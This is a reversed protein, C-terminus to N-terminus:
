RGTFHPPRKEAFAAIGEAHDETGQLWSVLTIADTMAEPALANLYQKAAAMALPANTAMQEGLARAADLHEGAGVIRQVLGALRAEDADLVQGGLIMLKMWHLNVHALGRAIGPGPVLGVQAEPMGFRATEDAIVVDSVISLECGGGLAFGHIAAIVPKECREVAEYASMADLMYARRDGAGRVDAFGEIDGGVSFCRGAGHLVIARVSPDAGARELAERLQAWAARPLANLKDPRNLTIWALPAEIRLDIM